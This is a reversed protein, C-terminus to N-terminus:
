IFSINFKLQKLVNWTKRLKYSFADIQPEIYLVIPTFGFNGLIDVPLHITTKSAQKDEVSKKRQFNNLSLINNSVHITENINSPLDIHTIKLCHKFADFVNRLDSSLDTLLTSAKHIYRMQETRLASTFPTCVQLGM